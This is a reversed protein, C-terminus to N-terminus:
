VNCIEPVFFLQSAHVPEWPNSSERITTAADDFKNESRTSIGNNLDYKQANIIRLAFDDM